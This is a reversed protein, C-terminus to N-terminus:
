DSELDTWWPGDAAFLVNGLHADGHIPVQQMQCRALRATLQEYMEFLADRDSIALASLESRDRLLAGCEEIKNMYSPLPYPLDALAEHVKAYHGRRVLSKIM